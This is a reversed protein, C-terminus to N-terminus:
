ILVSEFLHVTAKAHKVINKHIDLEILTLVKQRM